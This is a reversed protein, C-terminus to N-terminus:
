ETVCLQDFSHSSFAYCFVYRNRVAEGKSNLQETEFYVGNDKDIGGKGHIIGKARAREELERFYKTSANKKLLVPLDLVDTMNTKYVRNFSSIETM